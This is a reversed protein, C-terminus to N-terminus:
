GAGEQTGEETTAPAPAEAGAPTDAADAAADGSTAPAEELVEAQVEAEAAPAEPEAATAEAAPTESEAAPTETEVAPAESEATATEVDASPAAQAEGPSPERKGIEQLVFAIRSAPAELLMMLQQLPATLMGAIKARSVDLSDVTALGKAEEGSIVRGEMLGGKIVLEPHERAFTAIVKAAAIPDGNVYAIAVPGVFFEILESLGLADAARRALTNKTVRYSTEAEQLRTRLVALDTVTLGRYETVVAAQADNLETRIREVEAAKEPRVKVAYGESM